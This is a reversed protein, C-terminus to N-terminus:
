DAKRRWLLNGKRLNNLATQKGTFFGNAVWHGGSTEAWLGLVRNKGIDVAKVYRKRIGVRGSIESKAFGIWIEAPTEILEPIFPFYMERGDWRTDQKELMHEVIADTVSTAGGAPDRFVASTGGLAFALKSKLDEISRAHTGISANPTDIPIRDSLAYDAPFKPTLDVWPGQDEMLRLAESKGWAAEGPNYDWGPQIGQPVRHVKGTAPDTWDYYKIEPADTRIPHASGKEEDIL